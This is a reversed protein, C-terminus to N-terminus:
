RMVLHMVPVRISFRSGHLDVAKENKDVVDVVRDGDTVMVCSRMLDADVTSSATSSAHAPLVCPDLYGDRGDASALLAAAPVRAWRPLM